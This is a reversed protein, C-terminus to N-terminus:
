RKSEHRGTARVSKNQLESNRSECEVPSYILMELCNAACHISALTKALHHIFQHFYRILLRFPNETLPRKDSTHIMSIVM